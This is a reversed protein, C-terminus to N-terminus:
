GGLWTEGLSSLCLLGGNKPQFLMTQEPSLGLVHSRVMCVVRAHCVVVSCQTLSQVFHGVREHLMAQSEGGPPQLDWKEHASPQDAAYRDDGERWKTWDGFSMEMLRPDTSYSHSGLGAAELALEMTVCARHLPSSVFIYSDLCGALQRLLLGKEAGQRRGLPTLPSDAQATIIKEVNDKTEGHRMVYLINDQIM